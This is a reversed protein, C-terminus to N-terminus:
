QPHTRRLEDMRLVITGDTHREFKYRRAALRRAQASPRQKGTLQEIIEASVFTM